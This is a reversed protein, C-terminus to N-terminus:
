FVEPVAALFLTFLTPTIFCGQKVGHTVPFADTMEGDIVVQARTFRWCSLIFKEPCGFKFLLQWLCHRSISDFAKSFDVFTIYLSKNQEAAKEQLQRLTFIMDIMSRSSRFGCQEEPLVDNAVVLLRDLMMKAFINSAIALLSIGRYNGCDQRDGKREHINVILADKFHRPLADSERDLLNAVLTDGGHKYM